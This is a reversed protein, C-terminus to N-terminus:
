PCAGAAGATAIEGSTSQFNAWCGGNTAPCSITYVGTSVGAFIVSAGTTTAGGMPIVDLFETSMVGATLPFIAKDMNYMMAASKVAAIDANCRGVRAKDMAKMLKPVAAAALIGIITVVVLLEILTFGKEKKM